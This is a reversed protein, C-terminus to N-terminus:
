RDALGAPDDELANIAAHVRMEAEARDLGPPITEGFRFTVVGPRKIFSQRPSLLGSDVALPVVPLGLQRYLGAFGSKLPPRDGPAVRTGEPFILIPRGQTIADRAARLMSRLASASGERTVPITGYQKAVYGWLPIEA